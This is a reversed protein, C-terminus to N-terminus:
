GPLIKYSLHFECLMFSLGKSHVRHCETGERHQAVEAPRPRWFMKDGFSFGSPAGSGLFWWPDRRDAGKRGTVDVAASSATEQGQCPRGWRGCEPDTPLFRVTWESSKSGTHARCRHAASPLAPPAPGPDCPGQSHPATSIQPLAPSPPLFCAPHPGPCTVTVHPGGLGFGPAGAGVRSLHSSSPHGKVSESPVFLVPIRPGWFTLVAAPFSDSNKACPGSLDGWDGRPSPDPSQQVEQGPHSAKSPIHTGTETQGKWSVSLSSGLFDVDGAPGPM